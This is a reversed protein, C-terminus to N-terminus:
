AREKRIILSKIWLFLKKTLFIMLKTFGNGIFFLFITIGACALAAGLFALAMPLNGYVFCVAMVTIGAIAAVICGGFVGWLSIIVAWVSIYVSFLVAFVSGLISLWIPAGLVLLLIHWGELTRKKKLKEKILKSIPYESMIQEAIDEASGMRTVAEEESLGEEVLDDIMESYFSLREEIDSKPLGELGLRLKDLFERKNM